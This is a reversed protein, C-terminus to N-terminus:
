TQSDETHSVSQVSSSANGSLLNIQQIAEIEKELVERGFKLAGFCVSGKPAIGLEIFKSFRSIIDTFVEGAVGRQVELEKLAATLQVDCEDVKTLLNTQILTPSALYAKHAQEKYNMLETATQRAAIIAGILEKRNQLPIPKPQALLLARAENRQKYPAILLCAAFLIGITAFMGLLFVVAQVLAHVLGSSGSPTLFYAAIM